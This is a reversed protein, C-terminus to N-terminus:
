AAVLFRDGGDMMRDVAAHGEEVGGVHVADAPVLLQDALRDAVAAVLHEEGGLEAIDASGGALEEADLAIGIIDARGALRAQLPEADLDDVKIVLVADVG